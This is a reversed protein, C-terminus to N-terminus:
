HITTTAAQKRLIEELQHEIDKYFAVSEENTLHLGDTTQWVKKTSPGIWNYESHPFYQNIIERCGAEVKGDYIIPDLPIDVFCVVAGHNQMEAIISKLTTLNDILAPRDPEDELWHRRSIKILEPKGRVQPAPPIFSAFFRPLNSSPEYCTLFIPSIGALVRKHLPLADEVVNGPRVSLTSDAEILALKPYKKAFAIVKAGDMAGRGIMTLNVMDPDHCHVMVRNLESSGLTVKVPDSKALAYNEIRILNIRNMSDGTGAPVFGLVVLFHYTVLLVLAFIFAGFITSIQNSNSTSSLM